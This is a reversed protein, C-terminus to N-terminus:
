WLFFYSMTNTAWPCKTEIWEKDIFQFMPTKFCTGRGQCLSSETEGPWGHRHAILNSKFSTLTIATAPEHVHGTQNGVTWSGKVDKQEYKWHLDTAMAVLTTDAPVSSNKYAMKLTLQDETTVAVCSSNLFSASSHYCNVGPQTTSCGLAQLGSSFDMDLIMYGKQSSDKKMVFLVTKIIIGGAGPMPIFKSGIKAELSFIEFSYFALWASENYVIPQLDDNLYKQVVSPSIPISIVVLSHDTERVTLGVARHLCLLVTTALTFQAVVVIKMSWPQVETPTTESELYM